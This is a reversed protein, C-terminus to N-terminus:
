SIAQGSVLKWSKGQPDSATGVRQVRSAEWRAPSDVISQLSAEDVALRLLLYDESQWAPSSEQATQAVAASPAASPVTQAPPLPPPFASAWVGKWYRRKSEPDSLVSLQGSVTCYAGRTHSLYLLGGRRRGALVAAGEASKRSVAFHIFGLGGVAPAEFLDTVVNREMQPILPLPETPPVYASAEPPHPDVRLAGGFSTGVAEADQLLFCAASTRIVRLAEGAVDDATQPLALMSLEARAERQENLYYLLGTFPIANCLFFIFLARGGRFGPKLREDFAEPQPLYGARESLEALSSGRGGELPAIGGAGHSSQPTVETSTALTRYALPTLRTRLRRLPLQRQCRSAISM